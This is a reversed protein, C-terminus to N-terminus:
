QATGVGGLLAGVPNLHTILGAGFAGATLPIFSVALIANETIKALRVVHWKRCLFMAQDCRRQRAGTRTHNDGACILIEFILFSRLESGM